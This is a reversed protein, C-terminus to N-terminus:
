YQGSRKREMEEEFTEKYRPATPDDNEWTSARALLFCSILASAVVPIKLLDLFFILYNEFYSNIKLIKGFSTLQAIMFISLFLVGISALIRTTRRFKKLAGMVIGLFFLGMLNKLVIQKTMARKFHILANPKISEFWLDFEEESQPATAYPNTFLGGIGWSKLEARYQAKCLKALNQDSLSLLIVTEASFIIAILTLPFVRLRFM